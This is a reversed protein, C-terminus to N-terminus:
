LSNADLTISEAFDETKSFEVLAKLITNAPMAGEAVSVTGISIDKNEGTEENIYDALNITTASAAAVSVDSAKLLSEPLNSQPVFETDFDQNCALLGMSLLAMTYLGLKKMKKNM